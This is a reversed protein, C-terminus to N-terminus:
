FTLDFKEFSLLRSLCFYDGRAGLGEPVGTFLLCLPSGTCVGSPESFFFLSHSMLILLCMCVFILDMVLKARTMQLWYDQRRLRSLEKEDLKSVRPKSKASAGNAMSENFM